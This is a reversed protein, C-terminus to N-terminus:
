TGKLARCGLVFLVIGALGIAMSIAFAMSDIYGPIECAGSYASVFAWCLLAGAVAFLSHRLGRSQRRMLLVGTVALSALVLVFWVLYIYPGLGM